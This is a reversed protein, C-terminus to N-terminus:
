QFAIKEYLLMDLIRESGRQSFKKITMQIRTTMVTKLDCLHPIWSSFFFIQEEHSSYQLFYFCLFLEANSTTDQLGQKSGNFSCQSLKHCYKTYILTFHHLSEAIKLHYYIQLHWEATKTYWNFDTPWTNLQHWYSSNV